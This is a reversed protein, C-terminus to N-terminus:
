WAGGAEAGGGQELAARGSHRWREAARHWVHNEYPRQPSGMEVATREALRLFESVCERGTILQSLVLSCWVPAARYLESERLQRAADAVDYAARRETLRVEDGAVDLLAYPAGPAFDLPMGCSGPNVLLSRGVRAHWQVHSHGFVYVCPPQDRVIKQLRADADVCAQIDALYDAHDFACADMRAAYAASGLGMLGTGRFLHSSRHFMRISVRGPVVAEEPLGTLYTLARPSLARYSWYLAAQQEDTWGQQSQGRMRVLYGEKNGAIAIADLMHMERVVEAPWPLDAYYDGALLFAQAGHARADQIAARMGLVNGHIDSLIAYRM